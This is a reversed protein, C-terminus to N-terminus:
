NTRYVRKRKHAELTAPDVFERRLIQLENRGGVVFFDRVHVVLKAHKSVTECLPSQQLLTHNEERRVVALFQEVMAVELVPVRQKLLQQM